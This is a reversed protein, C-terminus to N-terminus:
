LNIGASAALLIPTYGNNDAFNVEAGANLYIQLQTADDQMIANTVDKRTPVIFCVDFRILRVM